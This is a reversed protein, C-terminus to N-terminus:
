CINRKTTIERCFFRFRYLDLKHLVEKPVEFFSLMFMALSSLISNILIKRWIVFTKRELL